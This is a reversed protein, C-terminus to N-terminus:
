QKLLQSCNRKAGGEHTAPRNHNNTRLTQNTFRNKNTMDKLIHSAPSMLMSKHKHKVKIM